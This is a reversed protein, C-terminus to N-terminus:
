DSAFFSDAFCISGPKFQASASRREAICNSDAQAIISTSRLFLLKNADTANEFFINSKKEIGELLLAVSQRESNNWAKISTNSDFKYPSTASFEVKSIEQCSLDAPFISFSCLMSFYLIKNRHKM